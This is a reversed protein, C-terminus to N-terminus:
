CGRWFIFLYLYIYIYIYIHMKLVDDEVIEFSAQFTLLYTLYTTGTQTPYGEPKLVESRIDTWYTSYDNVGTARSFVFMDFILHCFCFDAPACCKRCSKM